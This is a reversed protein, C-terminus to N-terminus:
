ECQLIEYLNKIIDELFSIYIEQVGYEYDLSSEETIDALQKEYMEIKEKIKEKM